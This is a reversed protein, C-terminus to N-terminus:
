WSEIGAKGRMAIAPNAPCPYRRFFETLATATRLGVEMDGEIEVKSQFFAQQPTMRGSAVAQFTDTDTVYCCPFRRGHFIGTLVGGRISISWAEDPAPGFQISLDADLQRIDEVLLRGIKEPLFNQFYRSAFDDKAEQRAPRRKGWNANRGFTLMREFYARDLAPIQMPRSVEFVPEGFLYPLYQQVANQISHELGTGTKRLSGQPVLCVQMDFMSEWLATLESFLPPQSTCINRVRRTWREGLLDAICGAAIDVPLLNVTADPNAEFRLARTKPRGSLGDFLKLFSFVGQLTLAGGTRSDGTLISPRAIMFELQERSCTDAVLTEAVSKSREYDNKWVGSAPDLTEYVVGRSRGTVYATSVYLMSARAEAALRLVQRTGEVNTLHLDENKRSGLDTLAAAHVIVSSDECLSKWVNQDLGFRPKAIDGALVQLGGGWEAVSSAMSCLSADLRATAANVDEARVLATVPLGRQLLALTVPGGLMGTAGTLLVRASLRPPLKGQM